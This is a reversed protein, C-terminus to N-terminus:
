GPVVHARSAETVPFPLWRGKPVFLADVQEAPPPADKPLEEWGEHGQRATLYVEYGYGRVHDILEAASHGVERLYRDTLECIVVPPDSRSLLARMGGLVHLEAGEVDIKVLRVRELLDPGVVADLPCCSVPYSRGSVPRVSSQAVSGYAGSFLTMTGLHQGLAVSYLLLNRVDNDLMNHVLQEVNDPLPEFALVRGEPGVCRAALLSYYGINAGIDVFVDGPRLLRTITDTIQPEWEGRLLLDQQVSDRPDCQLLGVKTRASLQRRCAGVWKPHLIHQRNWWRAFSCAAPTSLRNLGALCGASVAATARSRITPSMPNVPDILGLMPTPIM